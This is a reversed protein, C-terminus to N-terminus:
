KKHGKEKYNALNYIAEIDSETITTIAREGDSFGILGSRDSRDAARQIIDRIGDLRRRLNNISVSNSNRIAM